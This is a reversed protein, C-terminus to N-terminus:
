HEKERYEVRLPWDTRRNPGQQESRIRHAVSLLERDSYEQRLRDIYRRLGERARIRPVNAAPNSDRLTVYVANASTTATLGTEDRLIREIETSASHISDDRFLTVARPTEEQVTNRLRRVLSDIVGEETHELFDRIDALDRGKTNSSAVWLLFGVVGRNVVCDSRM